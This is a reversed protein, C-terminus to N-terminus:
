IQVPTVTRRRRSDIGIVERRFELADEVEICAVILEVATDVITYTDVDVIDQQNIGPVVAVLFRGVREPLKAAAVVRDPDLKVFACARGEYPHPPRADVSRLVASGSL